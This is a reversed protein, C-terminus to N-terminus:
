RKMINSIQMGIQPFCDKLTIKSKEFFILDLMKYILHLYM